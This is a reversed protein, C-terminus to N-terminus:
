IRKVNKFIRDINMVKIFGQVDLINIGFNNVIGDNTREIIKSSIFGVQNSVDFHIYM